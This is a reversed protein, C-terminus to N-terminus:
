AQRLVDRSGGFLGIERRCAASVAAAVSAPSAVCSSAAAPASILAASAIASLAGRASTAEAAAVGLVSCDVARGEDGEAHLMPRPLVESLAVARLLLVRSAGTEAPRRVLPPEQAVWSRRQCRAGVALASPRERTAARLPSVLRLAISFAAERRLEDDSSDAERRLEDDSSDEGLKLDLLSDTSSDGGM